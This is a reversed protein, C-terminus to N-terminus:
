HATRAVKVGIREAREVMEPDRSGVALAAQM